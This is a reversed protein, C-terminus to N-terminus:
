PLPPLDPPYPPKRFSGSFGVQAYYFGIFVAFAYLLIGVIYVFEGVLQAQGVVNFQSLLYFWDHFGNDGGLLPLVQPLADKIYISVDWFNEATWSLAIAGSFKQQTMFFYASIAAPVVIQMLSGSLVCIFQGLFLTLGHGAEHFILNVGHIFMMLRNEASLFGHITYDPASFLGYLAVAIALALKPKEFQFTWAGSRRPQASAIASRRTPSTQPRHTVIRPPPLTPLEGQASAARPSPDPQDTQVPELDITHTWSPLTAQAQYAEVWVWHVSAIQLRQMGRQILPITQNLAPVVPATLRIVLGNDQRHVTVQLTPSRLAHRLLLAIAEPYGQRAQYLLDSHTM